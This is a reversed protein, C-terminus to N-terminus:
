GVSPHFELEERKMLGRSPLEGAEADDGGGEQRENSNSISFVSRVWTQLLVLLDLNVRSSTCIGIEECWKERELKSTLAHILTADDTSSDDM